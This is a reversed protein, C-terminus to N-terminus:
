VAPATASTLLVAHDDMYQPLFPLFLPLTHSGAVMAPMERFTVKQPPSSHVSSGLLSAAIM